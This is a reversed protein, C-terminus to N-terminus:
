NFSPKWREQPSISNVVEPDVTITEHKKRYLKDALASVGDIEKEHAMFEAFSVPKELDHAYIRVGKGKLEIVRDSPIGAVKGAPQTEEVSWIQSVVKNDANLIVGITEHRSRLNVVVRENNEITESHVAM